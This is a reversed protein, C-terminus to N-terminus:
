VNKFQITNNPSYQTFYFFYMVRRVSVYTLVADYEIVTANSRGNVVNSCLLDISKIVQQLTTSAIRDTKRSKLCYGKMEFVSPSIIKQLFCIELKLYYDTKLQEERTSSSSQNRNTLSTTANYRQTLKLRGVTLKSSAVLIRQCPPDL